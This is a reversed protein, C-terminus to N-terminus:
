VALLSLQVHERLTHAGILRDVLFRFSERRIAGLKELQDTHRDYRDGQPKGFPGSAPFRQSGTSSSWARQNYTVDARFISAKLLGLGVFRRLIM